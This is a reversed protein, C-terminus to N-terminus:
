DKLWAGYKYYIIRKAQWEGVRKKLKNYLKIAKAGRLFALKDPRSTPRYLPDVTQASGCIFLREPVENKGLSELLNELSVYIM